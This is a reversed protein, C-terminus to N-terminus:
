AILLAFVLVSSIYFSYICLVICTLFASIIYQMVPISSYYSVRLLPPSIDGEV